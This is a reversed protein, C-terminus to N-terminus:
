WYLSIFCIKILNFSEDLRLEESAERATFRRRRGRFIQFVRRQWNSDHNM